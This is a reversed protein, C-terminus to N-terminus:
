SVAEEAVAPGGALWGGHPDQVPPDFLEVVGQAVARAVQPRGALGVRAVRRAVQDLGRAVPEVAIAAAKPPV